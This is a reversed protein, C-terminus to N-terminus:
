HRRSSLATSSSSSPDQSSCLVNLLRGGYTGMLRFWLGGLGALVVMSLWTDQDFGLGHLTAVVTFLGLLPVGFLILVVKLLGQSNVAYAATDAAKHSPSWANCGAPCGACADGTDKAPSMAADDLLIKDINKLIKCSNEIFLRSLKALRLYQFKM